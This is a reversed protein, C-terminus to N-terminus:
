NFVYSVQSNNKPNPHPNQFWSVKLASMSQHMQNLISVPNNLLTIKRTESIQIYLLEGLEETTCPSRHNHHSHVTQKQSNLMKEMLDVLQSPLDVKKKIFLLPKRM